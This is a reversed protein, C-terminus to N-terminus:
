LGNSATLASILSVWYGQLKLSTERFAMKCARTNSATFQEIERGDGSHVFTTPVLFSPYHKMNIGTATKIKNSQKKHAFFFFFFQQVKHGKEWVCVTATGRTM